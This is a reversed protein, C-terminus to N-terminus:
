EDSIAWANQVTLNNENGWIDVLKLSIKSTDGKFWMGFTKQIAPRGEVTKENPNMFQADITYCNALAVSDKANFAKEFEKYGAEVNARAEDLNFTAKAPEGNPATDDAKKCSIATVLFLELVIHLLKLNKM